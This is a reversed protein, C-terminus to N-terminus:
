YQWKWGIHIWVLRQYETWPWGATRKACEDFNQFLHSLPCHWHAKNPKRSTPVQWEIASPFLLYQVTGASFRLGHWYLVPDFIYLRISLPQKRKFIQIGLVTHYQITCVDGTVNLFLLSHSSQGSTKSNRRVNCYLVNRCSRFFLCYGDFNLFNSAWVDVFTHM